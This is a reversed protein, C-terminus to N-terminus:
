LIYKLIFNGLTILILSAKVASSSSLETNCKESNCFCLYIEVDVSKKGAVVQVAQLERNCGADFAYQADACGRFVPVSILNLNNLHAKM